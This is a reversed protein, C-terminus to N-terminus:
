LDRISLANILPKQSKWCNPYRASDKKMGRKIMKEMPLALTNKFFGIKADVTYKGSESLLNGETPKCKNTKM